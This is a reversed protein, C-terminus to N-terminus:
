HVPRSVQQPLVLNAFVTKVRLTGQFWSKDSSAPRCPFNMIGVEALHSDLRKLVAIDERAESEYNLAYRILARCLFTQALPDDRFHFAINVCKEALQYASNQYLTFGRDTWKCIEEQKCLITFGNKNVEFPIISQTAIHLNLIQSTYLLKWPQCSAGLLLGSGLNAFEPLRAVIGSM